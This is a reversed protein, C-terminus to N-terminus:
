GLSTILSSRPHNAASSAARSGAARTRYQVQGDGTLARGGAGGRDLPTVGVPRRLGAEVADLAEKVSSTWTLAGAAEPRVFGREVMLAVQARLPAYLGDTDLAM